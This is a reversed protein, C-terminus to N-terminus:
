CLTWIRYSLWAPLPSIVGTGAAFQQICVKSLTTLIGNADLIEPCPCSSERVKLGEALRELDEDDGNEPKPM